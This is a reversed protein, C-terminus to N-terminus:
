YSDFNKIAFKEFVFFNNYYFVKNIPQNSLTMLM